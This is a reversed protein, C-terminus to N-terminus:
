EGQHGGKKLSTAMMRQHIAQLLPMTTADSRQILDQVEGWWKARLAGDELSALNIAVNMCAGQVAAYALAAGVGADSVLNPNGMEAVREAHSLVRSACQATELPIKVALQLAEPVGAKLRQANRFQEYAESDEEMLVLLRQRLHTLDALAEELKPLDAPLAKKLSFQIVMATLAAGMAATLAAASGGGPTATKAALAEVFVEVPSQRYRASRMIPAM